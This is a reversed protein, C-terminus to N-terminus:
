PRVFFDAGTEAYSSTKGAVNSAKLLTAPM